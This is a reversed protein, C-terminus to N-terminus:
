NHYVALAEEKMETSLKRIYTEQMHKKPSSMIRYVIRESERSVNVIERVTNIKSKLDQHLKRAEQARKQSHLITLRRFTKNVHRSKPTEFVNPNPSISLTRLLNAKSSLLDMKTPCKSTKYLVHSLVDTYLHPYKGIISLLQNSKKRITYYNPNSRFSSPTGTPSTNSM